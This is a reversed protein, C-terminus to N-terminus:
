IDNEKISRNFGELIRHKGGLVRFSSTNSSDVEYIDDVVINFEYVNDYDYYLCYSDDKKSKLDLLTIDVLSKKNESDETLLPYYTVDKYELEYFPFRSGSMSVIIFECLDKLCIREDVEIQRNVKDELECLTVDLLVKM